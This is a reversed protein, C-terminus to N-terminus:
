RVCIIRMKLATSAVSASRSWRGATKGDPKKPKEIPGSPLAIKNAEQALNQFEEESSPTKLIMASKLEEVKTPGEIQFPAVCKDRLSLVISRMFSTNFTDKSVLQNVAKHTFRWRFRNKYFDFTVEKEESHKRKRLTEKPSWIESEDVYWDSTTEGYLVEEVNFQINELLQNTLNENKINPFGTLASKFNEDKKTRAPQRDFCWNSICM